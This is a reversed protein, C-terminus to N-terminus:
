QVGVDNAAEAAERVAVRHKATDAGRLFLCEEVAASKGSSRSLAPRQGVGKSSKRWCYLRRDSGARAPLRGISFQQLASRRQIVSAPKMSSAAMTGVFINAWCPTLTPAVSIPPTTVLELPASAPTQTIASVVSSDVLNARM